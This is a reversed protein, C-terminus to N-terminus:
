SRDLWGRDRRAIFMYVASVVAAAAVAKNSRNGATGAASDQTFHQNAAGHPNNRASHTPGKEASVEILLVGFLALPASLPQEQCSSCRAFLM